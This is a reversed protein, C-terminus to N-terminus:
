NIQQSPTKTVKHKLQGQVKIRGIEVAWPAPNCTHVVGLLRFQTKGEEMREKQM